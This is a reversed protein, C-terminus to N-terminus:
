PAKGIAVGWPLEGAPIKKIVQLTKTDLVTVDNSPGNGSYLKSGDPTLAIGWPRAGVEVSALISDTAADVVSVTKGRGTSVYIRKDDPSVVVGMPKSGEPFKITKIVKRNSVDVVAMTGEVESSVYARSGERNFDLSRPRRGVEVKGLTKGDKTDLITVDHDTEGTVWVTEGNPHTRVGEPEKGVPVTAVVKGSAIDVFTAVNADENSVFLRTGDKSIDFAEPDSGGPLVKVLKRSAADIMGIGDKSKDAKLKECEEDPMTPPCRPSGSLAVFVYKGDTTVRVGRPRTGVQISAVASDTAVDIITLEGSGENTAYAVERGAPAAPTSDANAAPEERPREGGGCAVSALGLCCIWRMLDNQMLRQRTM